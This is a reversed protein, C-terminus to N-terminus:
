FLGYASLLMIFGLTLSPRVTSVRNVEETGVIARVIKQWEEEKFPAAGTKLAEPNTLCIVATTIQPEDQLRRLSHGDQSTSTDQDASATAKTCTVFACSAVPNVQPNYLAVFSIGKDTYVDPNGIEQYTPPLKNSFLSFGEKWYQVAAACDKNGPYYAPIGSLQEIETVEGEEGMIKQCAQKWLTKPSIARGSETHEPLTKGEEATEGFAPLGAARRAENMHTLCDLTEAKGTITASETRGGCFGLVVFLPIFALCLM